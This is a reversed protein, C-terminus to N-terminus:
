ESLAVVPERGTDIRRRRRSRVHAMLAIAVGSTLIMGMGTATPLDPVHGFAAWGMLTAWVFHLYNVPAILSAPAERYAYGFLFHGATFIVGLAAMLGLDILSPLPGDLTPLAALTFFVVLVLTVYFLLAMATETRSLVRTILHFATNGAALGLALGVGVPDLATGPRVILLVGAFGLAALGWGLRTVTEGLLPVALAMVAFPALYMIAITEGVPLLRLAYGITLTMLTLILGRLLTLGLREVRWLRSGLRPAVFALLVAIGVWARVAGIQEIPNRAALDKTITDGLAFLAVTCVALVIGLVPRGPATDIRPTSM